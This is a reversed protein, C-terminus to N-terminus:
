IMQAIITAATLREAAATAARGAKTLYYRYTGTVRKIVGLDLLRRLQRSLRNPSFMELEPLLDARRIGAINVRPNQLAHLLASDGPEFFNLGKVTKEEVKRPKTLRDLARVGASFDDLASLHALYRRNCGLLIERLDILSYISKKVPALERTPPGQRHEVKRHHKFFSVDNTTTEIRLVIGCKDYMKISSKGFRHKVCTGEIRTSFQSGIEQALQPTIHRGLFNAVQEAKVNLVTQRILQDYLPALTTTSRFALDTAYEVQMLSWHYSQGFVDCVPCCLGAYHDLVRHLQDPSLADALQQARQWDDIRVFANDAMTYSIGAATMQRALWSHGNCYFQLRFPAWTPVRLYVLGLAADMFYFYYHLCKGSDPRVFTKGSAKDHWPRYSDCSEMASLIHVLGPHDGRQALVRAVVAEKRIHSKAIHEIGIGSNAALLAAGDRVRDRLTQAFQPYDFIRIGNAYLFRTMGDAYCIVPVTGTIVVRDYCSLVGAIRDEYRETLSQSM